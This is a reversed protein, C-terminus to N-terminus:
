PSNRQERAPRWLRLNAGMIDRGPEVPIEYRTSVARVVEPWAIFIAPPDDTMKRYVDRLATKLEAEDRALWMRDLELDAASYGSNVLAAAGARPSHWFAHVWSPTNGLFEFLAAEFDGTALRRQFDTLSVLEPQMDVGLEFFQRQLVMALREFPQTEVATVVLCRFRLRSAAEDRGGQLRGGSSLIQKKAAGADNTQRPADFTLAWHEPSLPGDAVRARNRYTSAVITKRDVAQALAKRVRSDKFQPHRVNFLLAAVYPRVFPYVKVREEREVFEVAERSVEYLSDIENRMMASWASRASRYSRFEVLSISPKGRFYQDFARLRLSNDSSKDPIFPGLGGRVTDRGLTLDAVDELLLLRPRTTEVQLTENTTARIRPVGGVGAQRRRFLPEDFAARMLASIANADAPSGDHFVADKPLIFTWVLGDSSRRWGQALRPQPRGDREIAILQDATLAAAIRSLGTDANVDAPFAVGIRV